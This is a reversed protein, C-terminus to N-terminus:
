PIFTREEDEELEYNDWYIHDAKSYKIDGFLVLRGKIVIGIADGEAVRGSGDRYEFCEDIHHESYVVDRSHIRTVDSESVM